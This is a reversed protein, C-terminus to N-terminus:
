EEVEITGYAQSTREKAMYRMFPRVFGLPAGFTDNELAGHANSARKRM